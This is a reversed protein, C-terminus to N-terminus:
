KLFSILEKKKNELQLIIESFRKESSLNFPVITHNGMNKQLKKYNSNDYIGKYIKHFWKKRKPSIEFFRSDYIEISALWDTWKFESVKEGEYIHSYYRFRKWPIRLIDAFIAGHMAESIITKCSAIEEMFGNIDKTVPSILHWGQKACLKEWDILNASKFYPVFGIEHKKPLALYNKYEGLLGIFYAGDSIYNTTSNTLRFSSYPGRVFSVYWSNDLQINETISRVGTGLIIKRKYANADNVFTSNELLISGIGLLATDSNKDLFSKDFLREWLWVNLEDGVNGKDSNYYIIKM